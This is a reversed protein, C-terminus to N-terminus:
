FVFQIGVLNCQLITTHMHAHAQIRVNIILLEKSQVPARLHGHSPGTYAAPNSDRVQTVGVSVAPSSSYAAWTSTPTAGTDHWSATFEDSYDVCIRFFSFSHCVYRM